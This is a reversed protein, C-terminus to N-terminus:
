LQSTHSDNEGPVGTEEVLFVSRWSLAAINNFTANLVIRWGLGIDFCVPILSVDYVLLEFLPLKLIIVYMKINKSLKTWNYYRKIPACCINM